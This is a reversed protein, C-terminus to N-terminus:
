LGNRIILDLLAVKAPGHVEFNSRFIRVGNSAIIPFVIAHVNHNSANCVVGYEVM